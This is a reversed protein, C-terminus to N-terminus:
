RLSLGGDKTFVPHPGQFGKTGLRETRQVGKSRLHCSLDVPLGSAHRQRDSSTVTFTWARETVEVADLTTVADHKDEGRTRLVLQAQTDTPLNISDVTLSFRGDGVYTMSQLRAQGEELQSRTEHRRRAAALVSQWERYIVPSRFKQASDFAADSMRRHLRDDTLLRSVKLTMEALDEDPVLFGTEGNEIVDSPGFNVDFSVPVCGHAQAELLALSQGEFRSCLLAVRATRLESSVQDSYGAFVVHCGLGLSKVYEELAERHEGGGVIHLTADIGSRILRDMVDVALNARKYKALRGIIVVKNSLQSDWDPLASPGDVPNGLAIVNGENGFRRTFVDLQSSTLVVLRDWDERHEIIPKHASAITGMLPDEGSIVHTNHLIATKTAGPHKWAWLFSASFKSDVIVDVELAGILHSLWYRYLKAASPFEIATTQDRRVLQLIRHKTRRGDETPFSCDLLYLTGDPRYYERRAASPEGYGEYDVWLTSGDIERSVESKRRWAVSNTETPTFGAAPQPPENEAYFEHFNAVPVDGALRGKFIVSDILRRFAPNADFTVVMSPTGERQFLSARKLCMATMGGFNEEISWTIMLCPRTQALTGVSSSNLLSKLPSPDTMM